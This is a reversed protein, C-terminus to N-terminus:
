EQCKHERHHRCLRKNGPLGETFSQSGGPLWEVNPVCGLVDLGLTEGTVVAALEM